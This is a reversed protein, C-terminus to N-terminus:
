TFSFRFSCESGRAIVVLKALGWADIGGNAGREWDLMRDDYSGKKLLVLRNDDVTFLADEDADYFGSVGAYPRMILLKLLPSLLLKLVYEVFIPCGVNLHTLKPLDTLVGWRCINPTPVLVLHLHTLNLFPEVLFPTSLFRMTLRSLHPKGRLVPVLYYNFKELEVGEFLPLLVALNSVNPCSSVITRLSEKDSSGDVM